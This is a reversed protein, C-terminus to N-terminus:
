KKPRGHLYHDHNKALDSPLGKAMGVVENWLVESNGDRSPQIPEVRVKTGEPLHGEHLIVVGNRVEGTLTMPRKVKM